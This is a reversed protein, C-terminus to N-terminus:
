RGKQPPPTEALPQFYRGAPGCKRLAELDFAGRVKREDRCDLMPANGRKRGTVLDIEERLRACEYAEVPAANPFYVHFLCEACIRLRPGSPPPPAAKM